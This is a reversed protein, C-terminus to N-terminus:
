QKQSSHVTRHAGATHKRGQELSPGWTAELGMGCIVRGEAAGRPTSTHPSCQSLSAPSRSITGAEEGTQRREVRVAHGKITGVSLM